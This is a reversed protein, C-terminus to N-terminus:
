TQLIFTINLSADIFVGYYILINKYKSHM